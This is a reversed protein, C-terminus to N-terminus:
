LVECIVAHLLWSVVTGGVACSNESLKKDVQESRLVVGIQANRCDDLLSAILGPPHRPREGHQPRRVATGREELHAAREGHEPLAAPRLREGRLEGDLEASEESARGASVVRWLLGEPRPLM